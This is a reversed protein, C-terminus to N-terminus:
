NWFFRSKDRSVPVVSSTYLSMDLASIGFVTAFKYLHEMKNGREKSLFIILDVVFTCCKRSQREVESTRKIFM